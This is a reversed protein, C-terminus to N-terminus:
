KKAAQLEAQWKRVYGELTSRKLKPVSAQYVESSEIKIAARTALWKHGINVQWYLKLDNEINSFKECRAKNAIQVSKALMLKAKIGASDVGRAIGLYTSALTLGRFAEPLGGGMIFVQTTHNCATLAISLFCELIDREKSKLETLTITYAQEIRAFESEDDGTLKRIEDKIEGEITALANIFAEIFADSFDRTDM